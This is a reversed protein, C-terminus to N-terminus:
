LFIIFSTSQAYLNNDFSCFVCQYYVKIAIMCIYFVLKFLSFIQFGKYVPCERANSTRNSLLIIVSSIKTNNIILGITILYYTHFWCFLDEQISLFWNPLAKKRRSKNQIKRTITGDSIMNKRPLKGPNLNKQRNRGHM